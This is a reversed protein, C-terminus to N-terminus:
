HVRFDSGYGYEWYRCNCTKFGIRAYLSKGQWSAELVATPVKKEQARKLLHEVMATGLGKRRLEPATCVYYIGAVGAHFLVIGTVAPKGEYYGLYMEYPAGKQYAHPPLQKYILTFIQPTVGIGILVDSFDKIQELTEVRAFKLADLSPSPHFTELPLYMGVNEEKYTLGHALLIENLNAPTDSQCLWWSLPLKAQKYHELIHGVRAKASEETFKAGIVYNFTDDPLGSVVATVDPEDLMKMSPLYQAHYTMQLHMNAEMAKLLEEEM